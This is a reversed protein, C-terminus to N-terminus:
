KIRLLFILSQILFCWRDFAKFARLKGWCCCLLKETVPLFNKLQFILPFSKSPLSCFTQSFKKCAVIVFHILRHHKSDCNSLYFPLIVVLNVNHFFLLSFHWLDNTNKKKCVQMSSTKMERIYLSDCKWLIIYRELFHSLLRASCKTSPM